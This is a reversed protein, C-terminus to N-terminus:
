RFLRRSSPTVDNDEVACAALEGIKSDLGDIGARREVAEEGFERVEGAGGSDLALHAVVGDM